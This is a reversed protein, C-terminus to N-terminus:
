PTQAHRTVRPTARVFNDWFRPPVARVVELLADQYDTAVAQDERMINDVGLRLLIGLTRTLAQLKLAHATGALIRLVTQLRPRDHEPCPAGTTSSGSPQSSGALARDTAGLDRFLGDVVQEDLLRGIQPSCLGLLRIYEERLKRSQEHRVESLVWQFIGDPLDQTRSQVTHPLGDEFIESRHTKPALFAWVGTAESTPFTPRTAKPPSPPQSLRDFFYWEKRAQAAETRKVARLLRDHRVEDQSDEPDSLVSLMTDHLSAHARDATGSARAAHSGQALLAAESEKIAQDAEAHKLLTRLDFKHRANITLPSSHFELARRKAKPTAYLSAETRAPLGPATSGSPKSFLDPFEDDSSLDDDDDDEDDSGRIVTNRDRVASTPVPPSSSFLPPPPSPSPLSPLSPLSPPPPTPSAAPTARRPRPSQSSKPAPKFFSTINGNRSM